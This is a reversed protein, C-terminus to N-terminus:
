NFLIKNEFLFDHSIDLFLYQNQDIPYSFTRIMENKELDSYLDSLLGKQEYNMRVINELFYPRWSWNKNLYEPQLIWKNNIKIGNASIQFGDENCIYTRFVYEDLEGALKIMWDDLNLNDKKRYKKLLSQVQQNLQESLVYQAQLNKRENTIFNHIENKLNDKLADKEILAPGPKALYYGQYYRGGNRWSYNLQHSKEIGEFLLTAGIKRALLSLSYLVGQYSPTMENDNLVRLDVKLIDPELSTIRDLNNAGKGVDDIAIKVGLTQLYKFFHSLRVVEVDDDQATIELVIRELVFGKDKLEELRSIFKEGNDKLLLGANINLFLLIEKNESKMMQEFTLKQIHEDVELRFDDPINSDHFFGGLSKIEDHDKIRGFVEYGIVMHTDASIIPQYYPIVQDLNLLIELPDM